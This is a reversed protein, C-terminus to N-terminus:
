GAKSLFLVLALNKIKQNKKSNKESNEQEPRTHFSKLVLIKKDNERGIEGRKPQFYHRFLTKQNKSKKRM